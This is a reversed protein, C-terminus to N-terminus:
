DTGLDPIHPATGESGWIDENAHYKDVPIVKLKVKYSQKGGAIVTLLVDNQRSYRYLTL